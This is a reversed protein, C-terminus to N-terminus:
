SIVLPKLRLFAGKVGVESLEESFGIRVSILKKIEKDIDMMATLEAM